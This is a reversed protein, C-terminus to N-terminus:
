LSHPYSRIACRLDVPEKGSKYPQAFPFIVSQFVELPRFTLAITFWFIILRELQRRGTQYASLKSSRDLCHPDSAVNGLKRAPHM